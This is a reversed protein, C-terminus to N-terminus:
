WKKKKRGRRGKPPVKAASIYDNLTPKSPTPEGIVIEEDCSTSSDSADSGEQLADQVVLTALEETLQDLTANSTPSLALGERDSPLEPLISDTVQLPPLEHSGNDVIPPTGRVSVVGISPDVAVTSSSVKKVEIWEPKQPARQPKYERAPPASVTISVTTGNICLDITDPCAKLRDLLVCVKVVLGERIYKNIPKGISSLIWSIGETTLLQPPIGTLTLWKPVEKVELDLPTIGETWRRMLMM